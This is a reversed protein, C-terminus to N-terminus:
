FRVPSYMGLTNAGPENKLSLWTFAAMRVVQFQISKIDCYMIKKTDSNRVEKRKANNCIM